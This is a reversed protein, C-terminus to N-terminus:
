QPLRDLRPWGDETWRIPSIQLKPVGFDDGDYYHYVLMEGEPGVFAEQGGPGIFRGASALVESGGGAMMPTGAADVYPGTVAEARAVMVKYTSNVGACCRDFSVFLYYHNEHHLITAAEIGAGGRSALAYLVGDGELRKGSAPDIEVMTIGSWFSGFALWARGDATDVRFPDIANYNDGTGTRLVQGQDEWGEGPSKTDLSRNTALGIASTNVGFRSASYYLYYTDGHKAITPAWLNPPQFGLEERVWAPIGKGVSGADSWVLGDPSIKIRVAGQYDGGEQGTEFSVWTGDVVIVSPDHIRVDGSLVPQTQEARTAAAILWFGLCLVIRIM